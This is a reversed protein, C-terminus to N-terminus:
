RGRRRSIAEGPYVLTRMPSCFARNFLGLGGIASPYPISTAVLEPARNLKIHHLLAGGEVETTTHYVSGIKQGLEHRLFNGVPLGQATLDAITTELFKAIAKTTCPPGESGAIQKSTFSLRFIGLQADPTARPGGAVVNRKMINEDMGLQKVETATTVPTTM